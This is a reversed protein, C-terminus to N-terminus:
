KTFKKPWNIQEKRDIQFMRQIPVLSRKRLQEEIEIRPQLTTLINKIKDLTNLKMYSCENGSCSNCSDPQETPALMFVANPRLAKMKYMIGPETAIVFITEKSNKVTDLLLSTSGVVHAQSLLDEKCEPHALILAKPHQTKLVSLKNASFLVHVECSAPWLEMTRKYKKALFNGLNHDPAFLIDRDRPIANLIAEANSSTCIVDSLAKVEASSNIYTVSIHNPFKRRWNLFDQSNSEKVLSCSANLDPALVIKQPSLIKVTEAMFTVGALIVIPNNAESGKQALFLSDGVHDAIDQVDGQTYFHSLILAKHQQKLKMIETKITTINTSLNDGM